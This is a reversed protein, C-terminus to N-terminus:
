VGDIRETCEYDFFSAQCALGARQYMDSSTQLLTAPCVSVIVTVKSCKFASSSRSFNIRISRTISLSQISVTQNAPLKPALRLAAYDKKNSFTTSTRCAIDARPSPPIRPLSLRFGHYTEVNPQFFVNENGLFDGPKSGEM